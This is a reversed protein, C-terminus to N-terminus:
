ARCGADAPRRPAGVSRPAAVTWDGFLWRPSATSQIPRPRGHTAHFQRHHRGHGRHQCARGVRQGLGLRTLQPELGLPVAETGHDEAVAGFQLDAAAVLPRQGAVERFQRSGQPRTQRLAAHQVTFQDDRCWAAPQVEVGEAGADVRRRAADGPEGALRRCTEHGEVNQRQAIAVEGTRREGLASRDQDVHGGTEGRRHVESGGGGVAGHRGAPELPELSGSQVADDGLGCCTGVFGAPAGLELDLVAVGGVTHDGTIAHMATPVPHARQQQPQVIGPADQVVHARGRTERRLLPRLQRPQQGFM